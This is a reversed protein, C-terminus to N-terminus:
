VKSGKPVLKDYGKTNPMSIKGRLSFLKQQSTIRPWRGRQTGL